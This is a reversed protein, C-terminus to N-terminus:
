QDTVISASNGVVWTHNTSKAKPLTPLTSLFSGM